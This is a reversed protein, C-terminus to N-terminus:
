AFTTKVIIGPGNVVCVSLARREDGRKARAECKGLLNAINTADAIPRNRVGSLDLGRWSCVIM